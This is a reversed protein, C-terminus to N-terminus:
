FHTCLTCRCVVKTRPWPRMATLPKGLIIPRLELQSYCLTDGVYQESNNVLVRAVCDDEDFHAVILNTGTFNCKHCCSLTPTEASV